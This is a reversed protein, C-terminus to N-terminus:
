LRASFRRAFRDATLVSNYVALEDIQGSFFIIYGASGALSNGGWLRGVNPAISSAFSIAGTSGLSGPTGDVLGNVYCTGTGTADDYTAGVYMWGGNNVNTSSSRGNFSGGDATRRSVRLKASAVDLMFLKPTASGANDYATNSMSFICGDGSTKILAEISFSGLSFDTGENARTAYGSGGLTIAKGILGSAGQTASTVTFDKGNGSLDIATGSGSADDFSLYLLPSDALILSRRSMKARRGFQGLQMTPIM